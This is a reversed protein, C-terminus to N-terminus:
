SSVRRRPRVQIDWNTITAEAHSGLGLAEATCETKLWIQSIDVDGVEVAISGAADAGGTRGVLFTWHARNDTSYYIYAYSSGSGSATELNYGVLIRVDRFYGKLEHDHDDDNPVPEPLGGTSTTQLNRGRQADLSRRHAM